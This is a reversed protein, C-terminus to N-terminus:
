YCSNKAKGMVVKKSYPVCVFDCPYTGIKCVFKIYPLSYNKYKGSTLDQYQSIDSEM